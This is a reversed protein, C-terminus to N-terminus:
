GADVPEGAEPLTPDCWAVYWGDELGSTVPLPEAFSPLQEDRGRHALVPVAQRGDACRRWTAEVVPQDLADRVAARCRGHRRRTGRDCATLQASALFGDFGADLSRSRWREGQAQLDAHEARAVQLAEGAQVLASVLADRAGTAQALAEEARRAEAQLGAVREAHDARQGHLRSLERRAKGLAEEARAVEAELGRVDEYATALADVLGDAEPPLVSVSLEPLDDPVPRAPGETWALLGLGAGAAALALALPFLSRTQM